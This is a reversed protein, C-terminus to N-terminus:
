HGLKHQTSAEQINNLGSCYLCGVCTYNVLFYPSTYLLLQSHYTVRMCGLHLMRCILMTYDVSVQPGTFDSIYAASAHNYLHVAYADVTSANGGTDYLKDLSQGEFEYFATIGLICVEDNAWSRASPRSISHEGWQEDVFTVYDDLWERLFKDNVPAIIVNNGINTFWEVGRVLRGTHLSPDFSRFPLVDTDMYIGGYKLVAHLRMVDSKHASVAIPRGFIHGFDDVRQLTLRHKIADWYEGQPECIYHHFLVDPKLVDLTASLHLFAWYSLEECPGSSLSYCTCLKSPGTYLYAM